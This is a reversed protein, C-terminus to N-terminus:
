HLAHRPHLGGMMLSTGEPECVIIVEAPDNEHEQKAKHLKDPDAKEPKGSAGRFLAYGKPRPLRVDPRLPEPAVDLMDRFSESLQGDIHNSRKESLM